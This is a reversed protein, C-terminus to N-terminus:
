KNIIKQVPGFSQRHLPSVGYKEIANLHAQTGYGKHQKFGYVPYLEDYDKMLKDRSVKALVSAAAIALSKEDGKIISIVEFPLDTLSVADILAKKPKESLNLLSDRMAQKTANLINIEDIRTHEVIEIHFDIAYEKIYDAYALREKESLQKSDTLGLLTFDHPLIVSAAVVPGALPGRGAEDVGVIYDMEHDKFGDDFEKMKMFQKKIMEEKLQQKEYVVLLQQVGKREDKKLEKILALSIQNNTFLDKIQKISKRKMQIFVGEIYITMKITKNLLDQLSM